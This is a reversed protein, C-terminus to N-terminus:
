DTIFYEPTHDLECVVSMQLRELDMHINMASVALSPDKAEIADVIKTHEEHTSRLNKREQMTLHRYRDVQLKVQQILTWIGPFGAVEAILAHFNDDEKYFTAHDSSDIAQQQIALSGRLREVDAPTAMESAAQVTVIELAQRAVRSEPLTSLPIRGVYTGSKSVVEVLQNKSLRLVAERVPTRSVGEALAIEQESIPTGPKLKVSVIEDFLRQYITDAITGSDATDVFRPGGSPPSNPSRKKRKVTKKDITMAQEHTSTYDLLTCKM